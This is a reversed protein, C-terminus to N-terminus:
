VYLCLNMYVYVNKEPSAKCIADYPKELFGIYIFVYVYRCINIQENMTMNIYVYIYESLYM